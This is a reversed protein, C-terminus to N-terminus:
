KFPKEILFAMGALLLGTDLLSTTMGLMTDFSPLSQNYYWIFYTVPISIVLLLFSVITAITNKM